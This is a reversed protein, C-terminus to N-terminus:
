AASLFDFFVVFHDKNQQMILATTKEVGAAHPTLRQMCYAAEYM